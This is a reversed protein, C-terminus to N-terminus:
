PTELRAMLLAEIQADSMAAVAEAGLPTAANSAVARADERSATTSPSPAPALRELLYSALADITPHDFMVTAPLPKDLELGAGLQNRLQVAMLSDFGLDMLRDAAGPPNAPDLKLVRVVRSRVFERLLEHRDAPLADLVRQRVGKPDVAGPPPVGTVHAAAPAVTAGVPSAAAHTAEGAVRAVIVHQGIHATATGAQPWAGADDFGADRLAKCWTPADLLPNDTRLDDAFHQWGEILGTTMDFWALHATSEVLLLMGGPAVLERLRRMTARLDRSAHVANSAIVLDFGGGAAAEQAALERDLDLEGFDIFGLHGFEERARDFFFPSVDTFRYRTAEPVFCPLLAATTGGTGAGIELVRLPQAGRAAVFAQVASAALDNIYRMTASRRYLGDALEFAGSPFLTELPSQEGRLVASLLNGCHRVYDLLARNDDLLRESERWCADIGPEPLPRDAIFAAGESRLEGSAVLRELWRVLLHRYTPATGLRALLEDATARDGAVTFVGADRLVQTAYAVTLRELSQWKRDYGSLDLGVPARQSQQELAQSVARWADSSAPAGARPTALWDPWHRKREFPYVPLAVRRRAAHNDFGSWEVPAGAVHLAQLSDVIVDWDDHERRLSPLWTAGDPVCAAGMGVLVPHPGIELFHRIGADHLSRVSQEFRVAQRLHRSWYSPTGILELGAAAGTVNSVFTVQPASFRVGALAREFPELVPDMAASHSAYAVRLRSVRVGRAEFHSAVEDVAAMPGSVVVQEPGNYAAICAAGGLGSLAAEVESARAFVTAMAGPKELTDVLRTRAVVMRLADELSLVGAVHAAAYEGLSHGLVAAPVIGWSRWLAALAIEVAVLAPQGFRTQHIPAADGGPADIVERLPREIMPELLAAAEDLARRFVPSRAYLSRAMGTSQAGGGTFLFAVRPAAPSATGTVLGSAEEGRAAARLSAALADADNGRAVARHAFHTRRTNATACLDAVAEGADHLRAAVSACLQSLAHPTRASLAIVHQPPGETTPLAPLPPAEELVVHANTGSFGFSSVGALRRGGIPEWPTATTPVTIAFSAWDIHPNKEQLHLHPPIERHRLALVVKLLGAVGAAAELHGVNTKISGIALPSSAPRGECLAAGLAQVEIPDGLSTGTGHAEVYGIQSPEVRAARLAARIVAEQAPGNPATLGGSRGDQNVASGRVVALVRDGPTCDRLRRLVVLACGEGRVYGDARADFTKCRGDRSMMRAKSFNINIEPSLILNIGGAIALECEGSRLSQVAYHLAVLSSSCATDITVSPGHTGLFYSLRGSVVSGANGPSFYPDIRELHAFLMRGYDNNSVGVFVGTATGHLQAPAIGADEFAHWAAELVIRQQPDMSEAERPSIGFFEADFRDVDDIFGGERTYMRGPADADDDHLAQIDWREPPIPTIADRGSRLLEWLADLDRVGGPFRLGAGVIAVPEHAASEAAAVRARLERIELLARKIPSLEENTAAPTSV